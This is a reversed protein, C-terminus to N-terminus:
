QRDGCNRHGSHRLYLDVGFDPDVKGAYVGLQLVLFGITVQAWFPLTSADVIQHAGLAADWMLPAFTAVAFYLLGFALGKIRWRRVPPFDRGKSVCELMAFSAFLGLSIWHYANM